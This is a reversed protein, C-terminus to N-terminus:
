FIDLRGTTRPFCSSSFSPLPGVRFEISYETCVSISPVAPSISHELQAPWNGRQRGAPATYSTSPPTRDTFHLLPGRTLNSTRAHRRTDTRSAGIKGSLFTMNLELRRRVTTESKGVLGLDSM